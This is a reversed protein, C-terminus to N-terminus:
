SKGSYWRVLQESTSGTIEKTVENVFTKKRKMFNKEVIDHSTIMM